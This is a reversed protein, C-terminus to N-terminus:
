VTTLPRHLRIYFEGGSRITVLAHFLRPSFVHVPSSFVFKKAFRLSLFLRVRGLCTNWSNNFFTREMYGELSTKPVILFGAAISINCVSKHNSSKSRAFNGNIKNWPIPLKM